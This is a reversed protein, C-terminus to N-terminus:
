RGEQAWKKGQLKRGRGKRGWRKKGRGKREEAKRGRVGKKKHEKRVEKGQGKVMYGLQSLFPSSYVLRRFYIALRYGIERGRAEM